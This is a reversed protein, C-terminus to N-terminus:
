FAFTKMPIFSAEGGVGQGSKISHGPSTTSVIVRQAEKWKRRVTRCLEELYGTQMQKFKFPEASM